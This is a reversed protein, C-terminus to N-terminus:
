LLPICSDFLRDRAVLYKYYAEDEKRKRAFFEIRQELSLPLEEVGSIFNSAAGLLKQHTAITRACEIQLRKLNQLNNINM